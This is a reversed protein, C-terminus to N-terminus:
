ARARSRKVPLRAIPMEIKKVYRMGGVIRKM